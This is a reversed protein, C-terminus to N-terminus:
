VDHKVRIGLRYTHVKDYKQALKTNIKTCSVKQCDAVFLTCMDRCIATIPNSSLTSYSVKQRLPLFFFTWMNACQECIRVDRLLSIQRSYYQFWIRCVISQRAKERLRYRLLCHQSTHHIRCRTLSFVTLVVLWHVDHYGREIPVENDIWSVNSAYESIM